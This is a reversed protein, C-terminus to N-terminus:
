NILGVFLKMYKRTGADFLFLRTIKERLQEFLFIFSNIATSDYTSLLVREM